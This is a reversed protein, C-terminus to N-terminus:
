LITSGTELLSKLNSIIRPWGGSVATILNSHEREITHTITLKVAAGLNRRDDVAAQLSRRATRLSKSLRWMGGGVLALVGLLILLELMGIFM